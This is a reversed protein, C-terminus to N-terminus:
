PTIRPSWAPDSPARNKLVGYSLRVLKRLCAGIAQMMPKSRPIAERM